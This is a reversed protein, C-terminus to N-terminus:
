LYHFKRDMISGTDGKRGGPHNIGKRGLREIIPGILSFSQIFSNQGVKASVYM